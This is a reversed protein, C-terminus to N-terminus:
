GQAIIKAKQVGKKDKINKLLSEINKTLNNTEFSITVNALGQIPIDQNITLINGHAKAIEDLISSLVGPIHDLVLFITIIKGHSAEYFPAVSDKYKYFASRSMDVIKTAENITKAKGSKLLKKAKITKRIIEPLKEEKIIYFNGNRTM